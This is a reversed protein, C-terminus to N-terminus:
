DIGDMVWIAAITTEEKGDSDQVVVDDALVEGCVDHEMCSCGHDGVM